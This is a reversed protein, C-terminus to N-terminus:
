STINDPKPATDPKPPRVDRPKIENTALELRSWTAQSIIFNHVVDPPLQQRVRIYGGRTDFEVDFMARDRPSQMSITKKVIGGPFEQRERFDVTQVKM